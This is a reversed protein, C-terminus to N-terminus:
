RAGENLLRQRIRMWIDAMIVGPITRSDRRVRHTLPRPDTPLLANRAVESQTFKAWCAREMLDWHERSGVRIEAGKYQFVEGTGQQRGARKAEVGTLLAVRRRDSESDFKLGQWFGEVSNYHLGALVFPTAAFNSILRIQEDPHNSVVNIPERCAIPRPGLDTLALGSGADIRLVFVHGAHQVKWSAAEAAEATEEPVLVVHGERLRVKM